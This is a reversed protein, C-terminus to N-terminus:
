RGKRGLSPAGIPRSTRLRRHLRAPGYREALSELWRARRESAGLKALERAASGVAYSSLVGPSGSRPTQDITVPVPSGPAASEGTLRAERWFPRDYVTVVRIMDGPVYARLLEAHAVPLAPDYEIHSALVPPTAVIVRRARIEINDSTVDVHDTTQSVRRVPSSLRVADGLRAAIRNALEPVGGDVLHTETQRSDGFYEFGGGGRALVLSGLLSVASPETCFFLSMMTDLLARAERSPVNLGSSIWEGLTRRDLEAARPAAWPHDLPLRRAMRELRKLAVGVSLLGFWSLKPIRGRSLRNEGDIRLLTAGDHFQPYAALGVERCLDFMRHQGVGLWTGGVSVVTGDPLARNWVRGGVRDRAELVVVDRGAEVLLKAAALGAFGAGIVCVDCGKYNPRSM